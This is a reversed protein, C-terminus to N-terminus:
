NTTCSRRKGRTRPALRDGLEKAMRPLSIVTGYGAESPSQCLAEGKAGDGMSAPRNQSPNSLYDICASRLVLYKGANGGTQRGILDGRKILNSVTRPSVKLFAAAEALTLPEDHNM